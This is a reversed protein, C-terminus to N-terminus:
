KYLENINFKHYYIQWEWVADVNPLTTLYEEMYKTNSPDNLDRLSIWRRLSMHDVQQENDKLKKYIRAWRIRKRHQRKRNSRLQLWKSDEAQIQLYKSVVLDRKPVYHYFPCKLPHHNARPCLSCKLEKIQESALSIRDRLFCYSEYDSKKDRLMAILQVKPISLTISHGQSKLTFTSPTERITEELLVWMFEKGKPNDQSVNFNKTISNFSNLTARLKGKKLIFFSTPVDGEAVIIESSYLM